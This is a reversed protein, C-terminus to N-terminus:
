RIKNKTLRMTLYRLSFVCYFGFGSAQEAAEKSKAKEASPKHNGKLRVNYNRSLWVFGWTTDTTLLRKSAVAPHGVFGPSSTVAVVATCVTRGVRLGQLTRRLLHVTLEMAILVGNLYMGRCIMFVWNM